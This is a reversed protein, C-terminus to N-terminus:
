IGLNVKEKTSFYKKVESVAFMWLDLVNKLPIFCIKKKFSMRM